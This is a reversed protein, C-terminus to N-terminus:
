QPSAREILCSPMAHRDKGASLEICVESRPWEKCDLWGEIFGTQTKEGVAGERAQVEFRLTTTEEESFPKGLAEALASSPMEGFAATYLELKSMPINGEVLAYVRLRLPGRLNGVRGTVLNEEQQPDLAWCDIGRAKVLKLADVEFHESQWLTINVGRVQKDRWLAPLQVSTVKLQWEPWLLAENLPQLGKQDASYFQMRPPRRLGTYRDSHERLTGEVGQLMKEAAGLMGEIPRAALGVVGFFTGQLCGIAGNAQARAIPEEAIGTVAGSIGGICAKFGYDCGEGINGARPGADMPHGSLSGVMGRVEGVTKSAANVTSGAVGGALEAAGEGLTVAKKVAGNDNESLVEDKAKRGFKRVSGEVDDMFTLPDGLITLSGFFSSLTQRMFASYYFHLIHSMVPGFTMGTNSMSCEGFCFVPSAEAFGAGVGLARGLASRYQLYRAGFQARRELLESVDNVEEELSDGRVRVDTSIVLQEIRLDDINLIAREVHGPVGFGPVIAQMLVEEGDPQDAESIQLWKLFRVAVPLLKPVNIHVEVPHLGLRLLDASAVHTLGDYLPVRMDQKGVLEFEVMPRAEPRCEALDAMTHHRANLGSDTPGFIFQDEQLFSDVQIHHISFVNARKNSEKTLQVYDVTVSLLEEPLPVEGDSRHTDVLCIHLGAFYIRVALPNFLGEFGGVESSTHGDFGASRGKEPKREERSCCQLSQPLWAVLADKAKAAQKQLKEPIFNVQCVAEVDSEDLAADGDTAATPFVAEWDHLSLVVTSGDRRMKAALAPQAGKKDRAARHEAYLANAKSGTDIVQNIKYRVAESDEAGKIKVELELDDKEVDLDSLVFNHFEECKVSWREDVRESVQNFEVDHTSSRNEVRYPWQSEEILVFVTAGQCQVSARCVLCPTSGGTLRFCTDGVVIPVQVSWDGCIREGEQGGDFEESVRISIARPLSGEEKRFLKDKMTTRLADKRFPFTDLSIAQGPPLIPCTFQPGDDPARRCSGRMPWVDLSTRELGNIVIYRPVVTIVKSWEFPPLLDHVYIGFSTVVTDATQEPGTRAPASVNWEVERIIGGVVQVSDSWDAKSFDASGSWHLLPKNHVKRDWIWNNDLDANGRACFQMAESKCRLFAMSPGLVPSADSHTRGFQPGPQPEPEAQWRSNEQPVAHVLEEGSQVQLERGTKNVVWCKAYICLIATETDAGEWVTGADLLPATRFREKAANDGAPPATKHIEVSEWKNDKNIWREASELQTKGIKTWYQYGCAEFKIYLTQSMDIGACDITQGPQICTFEEDTDSRTSFSNGDTTNRWICMMECPLVNKLRLIPLLVFTRDYSNPRGLFPSNLQVIRFYHGRSIDVVEEKSSALPVFHLKREEGVLVEWTVDGRVQKLNGFLETRDSVPFTRAQPGQRKKTQVVVKENTM